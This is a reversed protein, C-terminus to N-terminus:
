PGSASAPRSPADEDLATDGGQLRQLIRLLRSVEDRSLAGDGDRDIAEVFPALRDPIEEGRLTGDRDRDRLFVLTLASQPNITRGAGGGFRAALDRGGGSFFSPGNYADIDAERVAVFGFGISGMEDTSGEGWRVLKPPRAPNHPNDSSNDYTLTTRLVTGKPLRVPTDYNYRGQWNFDWRDIAFLKEVSGDPKEAVAQMTTCLYHAHGGVLVVDIDFPVEWRGQITFDKVGPPIGRTALESFRGFVIPAQTGLLRQKPPEKAFYLGLQTQERTAKGSPHFHLQLVLDSGKALPNALGMPLHRPTAGVAWGGLSGSRAFAMRSFGPGPEEADLRRSTGSRDLFYLAHHVVSRDTPQIEVATVWRDEPLDLPLVFMRTIDPGDAPVDFPEPLTVVLDPTGLRWGGAPAEPVPPLKEPPGEPMGAEVWRGIAAVQEPSLRREDQFHGWGPAPPWPPMEGGAVVESLLPGRKRADAYSLLHFPAGQGPRHCPTCHEFLIPAVTETFTPARDAGARDEAAQAPAGLCSFVVVLMSGLGRSAQGSRRMM